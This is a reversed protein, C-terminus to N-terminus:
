RLTTAYVLEIVRATFSKFPIDFQSAVNKCVEELRGATFAIAAEPIPYPSHGNTLSEGQHVHHGNRNAKSVTVLQSRKTLAANKREKNYLVSKSSGAIGHKILRHRGLVQPRKFKEGCEPCALRKDPGRETKAAWRLKAARSQGHVGHANFRHKGLAQLRDFTRNCEPCKLGNTATATQAKTTLTQREREEHTNGM